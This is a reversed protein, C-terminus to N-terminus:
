PHKNETLLKEKFKKRENNIIEFGLKKLLAIKEDFMFIKNQNM